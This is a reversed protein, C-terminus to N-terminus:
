VEIYETLFLIKDNNLKDIIIREIIWPNNKDRIILTSNDKSFSRTYDWKKNSYRQFTGDSNFIFYKKDIPESEYLELEEWDDNKIKDNFYRKIDCFECSFKKNEDLKIWFYKEALSLADIKNAIQSYKRMKWNKYADKSFNEEISKEDKPQDSWKRYYVEQYWKKSQNIEITIPINLFSCSSSLNWRKDIFYWQGNAVIYYEINWDSNITTWLPDYWIFTEGIKCNEHKHITDIVFADINGLWKSSNNRQLVFFLISISLLVIRIRKRM